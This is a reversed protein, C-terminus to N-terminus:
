GRRPDAKASFNTKSRHSPGLNLSAKTTMGLGGFGIKLESDSRRSDQLRKTGPTHAARAHAFREMSCVTAL